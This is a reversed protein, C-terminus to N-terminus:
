PAVNVNVSGTFGHGVLQDQDDLVVLLVELQHAVHKSVGPILRDLRAGPFVADPERFLAPGREDQHVDLKRPDVADGGEALQPRIRRGARDRHDRHGRRGHRLVALLDQGGPEVPVLGLRDLHPLEHVHDALREVPVGRPLSAHGLLDQHDVVHGDVHLQEGVEQRDLSVVDDGGRVAGLREGLDLFVPRPDHQEVDHHRPHAAVVDAALDPLVGCRRHQRDDHHRREIGGLLTHLPDLRAGVVEQALGDVLGLEQGADLRQEPDLHEVVLEGVPVPGELLPDLLLQRLEVPELPELAKEGGLEGLQDHAALGLVRELAVPALDRHDEEIEAPEGGEGLRGLGLLDHAHQAFVVRHHSPVDQRV